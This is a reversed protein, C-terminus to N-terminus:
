SDTKELKKSAKIFPIKESLPKKQDSKTDLTTLFQSISAVTFEAKMSHYTKEKHSVVVLSPYETVGFSTEFEIDHKGEIWVWAFGLHTHSDIVEKMANFYKGWTKSDSEQFKPLFVMVCQRKAFCYNQLIYHSTVEVLYNPEAFRIIMSEVWAIISETTRRGTYKIADKKPNTSKAPVYKITPYSRIKFDKKLEKNVDCNVKALKAKGLLKKAADRWIPELKHCHPCWPTYFDILYPENSSQISTTFNSEDLIVVDSPPEPFHHSKYKYRILNEIHSTIEMYLSDADLLKKHEFIWKGEESQIKISPYHESKFKDPLEDSYDIEAFNAFGEFVDSLELLTKELEEDKEKKILYVNLGKNKSFAELDKLELHKLGESSVAVALVSFLFLM